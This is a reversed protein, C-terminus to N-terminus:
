SGTTDGGQEDPLLEISILSGGLTVTRIKAGFSRVVIPNNPKDPLDVQVNVSLPTPAQPIRAVTCKRHLGFMAEQFENVKAVDDLSWTTVTVEATEEQPM